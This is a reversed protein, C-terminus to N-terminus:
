AREEQCFALGDQIFGNPDTMDFQENLEIDLVNFQLSDKNVIGNLLRDKSFENLVLNFLFLGSDESAIGSCTFTESYQERGEGAQVFCNLDNRTFSEGEYGGFVISLTSLCQEPTKDFVLQLSSGAQSNANLVTRMENGYFSLNNSVWGGEEKIVAQSSFSTCLLLFVALTKQM